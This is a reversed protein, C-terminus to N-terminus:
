MYRFRFVLASLVTKKRSSCRAILAEKRGTRVVGTRRWPLMGDDSKVHLNEHRHATENHPKGSECQHGLEPSWFELVGDASVTLVMDQLPCNAKWDIVSQHWGMPDVPLILHPEGSEVPLLYHSLLSMEPQDDIISSDTSITSSFKSEVRWVWAYGCRSAAMILARQTRRGRGSYGDDIDSVALLMKVEDDKDMSFGPLPIPPTPKSVDDDLHQLTIRGGADTKAYFVIARGKAFIASAQPISTEIWQGKGVLAKPVPAVRPVKGLREKYWVGIEGTDGVALLGRGNPTRVFHNIPSSLQVDMVEEDNSPHKKRTFGSPSTALLDLISM